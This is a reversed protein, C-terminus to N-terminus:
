FAYTKSLETYTLLHTANVHKLLQEFAVLVAQMTVANVTPQAADEADVVILKLSDQHDSLQDRLYTKVLPFPTLRRGSSAIFKGYGHEDSFGYIVVSHTAIENEAITPGIRQKDFLLVYQPLRLPLQDVSADVTAANVLVDKKAQSAFRM